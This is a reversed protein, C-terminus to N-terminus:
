CMINPTVAGVLNNNELHPLKSHRNNKHVAWTNNKEEKEQPYIIIPRQATCCAFLYINFQVTNNNGLHVLIPLLYAM